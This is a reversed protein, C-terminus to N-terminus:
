YEHSIQNLKLAHNLFYLHFSSLTEYKCVYKCVYMCVYKCVSWGLCLILMLQNFISTILIFSNNDPKCSSLLKGSWQWKQGFGYRPETARPHETESSFLFIHTIFIIWINKNVFCTQAGRKEWMFPQSPLNREPLPGPCNESHEFRSKIESAERFWLVVSKSGIDYLSFILFRAPSM